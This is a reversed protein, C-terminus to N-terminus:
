RPVPPRAGDLVAVLTQLGRLARPFGCYAYAHVMVEKLENVTMGDDLGAVLASELGALDGRGTLAAIEAIHQRKTDMVQEAKPTQAAALSAACLMGMGLMYKKM